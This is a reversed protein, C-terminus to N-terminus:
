RNLSKSIVNASSIASVKMKALRAPYIALVQPICGTITNTPSYDGKMLGDVNWWALNM